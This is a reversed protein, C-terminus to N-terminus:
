PLPRRRPLVLVALGGLILTAGIGTVLYIAVAVPPTVAALTTTGALIAAVHLGIIPLLLSGGLAFLIIPLSRKM